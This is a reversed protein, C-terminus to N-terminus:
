SYKELFLRALTKDNEGVTSIGPILTPVEEEKKTSM